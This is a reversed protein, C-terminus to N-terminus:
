PASGKQGQYSLAFSRTSDQLANPMNSRAPFHGPQCRCRLRSPKRRCATASFPKAVALAGAAPDEAVGGSGAGGQLSAQQGLSQLQAIRLGYLREFDEVFRQSQLAGAKVEDGWLLVARMSGAALVLLALPLLLRLM